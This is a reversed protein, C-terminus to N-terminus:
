ALPKEDKKNRIQYYAVVFFAPLICFIWLLILGEVLAEPPMKHARSWWSDPEACTLLVAYAVPVIAAGVAVTGYSVRKKRRTRLRCLWATLPITAVMFILIVGM